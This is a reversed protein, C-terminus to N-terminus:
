RKSFNRTKGIIVPVADSVDVTVVTVKRAQMLNDPNYFSVEVDYCESDTRCIESKTARISDFDWQTGSSGGPLSGTATLIEFVNTAVYNIAREEPTIGFNRTEEYLRLMIQQIIEGSLSRFATRRLEEILSATAWAATGRMHPVIVPVVENTSLRAEGVIVGSIAVREIPPNKLVKGTDIDFGTQGAYFDVLERYADEAFPGMPQVVYIPTGNQWLTWYVSKADYMHQKHESGGEENWGRLYRVLNIPLTIPLPMGEKDGEAHFQLSDQRAQNVFDVGLQGIVYVFNDSWKEQGCGCKPKAPEQAMKVGEQEKTTAAEAAEGSMVIGEAQMQEPASVAEAASAQAEVQDPM